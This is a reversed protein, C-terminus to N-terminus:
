PIVFDNLDTLLFDDPSEVLLGTGIDDIGIVQGYDNEDVFCDIEFLESEWNEVGDSLRSIWFGSSLLSTFAQTARYIIWGYDNSAQYELNDAPSIALLDIIEGSQMNEIYWSTAPTLTRRRIIQFPLLRYYPAVLRFTLYDNNCWDKKYNQQDVSNFWAFPLGTINAGVDM